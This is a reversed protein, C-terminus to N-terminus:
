SKGQGKAQVESESDNRHQKTPKFENSRPVPLPIKRTSYWM